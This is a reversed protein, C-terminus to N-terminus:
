RRFMLNIWVAVGAALFVPVFVFLVFGVHACGDGPPPDGYDELEM